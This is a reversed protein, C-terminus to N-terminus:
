GFHELVLNSYKLNVAFILKYFFHISVSFSPKHIIYPDMWLEESVKLFTEEIFNNEVIVGAPVRHLLRGAPRRPWLMHLVPEQGRENIRFLRLAPVVSVSTVTATLSDPVPQNAVATNKRVM